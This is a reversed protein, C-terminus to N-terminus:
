FFVGFFRGRKALFVATFVEDSAVGYFIEVTISKLTPRQDQCLKRCHFVQQRKYFPVFVLVIYFRQAFARTLVMDSEILGWGRTLM